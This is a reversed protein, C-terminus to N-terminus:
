VIRWTRILKQYNVWFQGRGGFSRFCQTPPFLFFRLLLINPSLSLFAIKLIHCAWQSCSRMADVTAQASSTSSHIHWCNILPSSCTRPTRPKQESSIFESHPPFMIRLQPYKHAWWAGPYIELGITVSDQSGELFWLIVSHTFSITALLPWPLHTLSVLASLSFLWFENFVHIFNPLFLNWLGNRVQLFCLKQSFSKLWNYTDIYQM